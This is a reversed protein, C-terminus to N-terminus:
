KLLSLTQIAPEPLEEFKLSLEGRSRIRSTHLSFLTSLFLVLNVLFLTRSYISALLTSNVIPLLTLLAFLQLARIWM